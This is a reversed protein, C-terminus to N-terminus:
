HKRIIVEGPIFSKEILGKEVLISRVSDWCVYPRKPFEQQVLPCGLAADDIYLQAYCKNSQTWDKQGPHWQISYLEIENEKFWSVAEELQKGSRMTYLILNHRKTKLLDETKLKMIDLDNKIKPILINTTDNEIILDYYYNLTKVDNDIQNTTKYEKNSYGELLGIIGCVRFTNASLLRNNNREVREATDYTWLPIDSSIVPRVNKINWSIPYPTM